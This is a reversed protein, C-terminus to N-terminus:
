GIGERPSTNRKCNVTDLQPKLTSQNQTFHFVGFIFDCALSALFSQSLSGLDLYQKRQESLKEKTEKVEKSTTM